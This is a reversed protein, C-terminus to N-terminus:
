RDDPGAGDLGPGAAGPHITGPHMQPTGMTGAAMPAPYPRGAVMLDLGVAGLVTSRLGAAGPGMAGLDVPGSGVLGPGVPGSAVPGSGVLGPRVAVAGATLPTATGAIPAPAGALDGPRDRGILDRAYRALVEWVTLGSLWAWGEKAATPTHFRVEVSRGVDCFRAPEAEPDPHELLVRLEGAGLNRAQAALARGELVAGAGMLSIVQTSRWQDSGRLRMSAPTGVDLRGFHREPVTVELFRQACDLVQAVADGTMVATGVAPSDTWVAGGAPATPAFRIQRQLTARAQGTRIRAAELDRTVRVKRGELEALQLARADLAQRIYLGEGAGQDLALDAAVARREQALSDATALAGRWEAALAAREQVLEDRGTASLAGTAALREARELAANVAALRAELAEAGARAAAERRALWDTALDRHRVGRDRLDEAQTRLADIQQTLADRESELVRERLEAEELADRATRAAQVVVVGEGARLPTGPARSARTIQGDLPSRLTVLPANVVGSTGVVWMLHPMLTWGAAGALVLGLITRLFRLM